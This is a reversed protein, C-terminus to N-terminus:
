PIWFTQGCKSNVLCRLRNCTRAFVRICEVILQADRQLSVQRCNRVLLTACVYFFKPLKRAPQVRSQRASKMPRPTAKDTDGRITEPKTGFPASIEKAVGVYNAPNHRAQTQHRLPCLSIVPMALFTRLSVARFWCWAKCCPVPRVALNSSHGLVQVPRNTVSKKSM